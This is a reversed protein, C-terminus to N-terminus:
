NILEKEMESKIYVVEPSMIKISKNVIKEALNRAKENEGTEKYLQVLRYLPIFRNPIMNSALILCNEAEQYKKMKQYNDAMLLQLDMDNYYRASEFLIRNSNENQGIFNLEAGYNYLFFANGKMTMYLREYDPMMKQTEGALSRHAISCWSYEDYFMKCSATLLGVCIILFLPKFVIYLRHRIELLNMENKMIIAASFVLILRVFPYNIPYSFCAFVAIGIICLGLCLTELSKIKRYERILFYIFVGILLSGILGQEVLLKLFENFPHKVTDALFAYSSNPHNKFYDAQYHMYERQFGGSGHGFLPKDAIMKTTCQWILLRGDASDKKLFYLGALIIFVIIAVTLLKARLSYQKVGKLNFVHVSWFGSIVILAIIGARSQSLVMVVIFLVAALGGFVRWFTEKKSIMILVFPFTTSLVAGFGAPNDFSGTIPFNGVPRFWHLYQGLGYFVESVGLFAIGSFVWLRNWEIRRALQYFFLLSLGSIIWEPSLSGGYEEYGTGLLLFGIFIMESFSWQLTQEKSKKIMEVITLLLCGIVSLYFAAATQTVFSRSFSFLSLAFLIIILLTNGM